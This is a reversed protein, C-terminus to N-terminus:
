EGKPKQNERRFIELASDKKHLNKEHNMAAVAKIAEFNRSAKSEKKQNNLQAAAKLADVELRKKGLQVDAMDKMAKRQQDQAKLQLEQQQMQIIPDQAQQQAQQQAAQGQNQILLRQAAQALMPALRAEAEQDIHVEEGSEDTQPPLTFGLQNQIEVRYQFGLHENIHAMMAMQIAQGMPNGQMLQQIKPDQMATMHVTIHAQHDQYAFAKVPKSMLVNQNESVPDTPKQDEPMPILKSANKIGLVDLMQRHLLPMNYMQPASQALQLVAQYQVIKQAMTAANPDSVPIVDVLDYDSQKATKKGEVPEYSYDPPTYDRIIDRLLCLEQKFSYHIRAQVATM